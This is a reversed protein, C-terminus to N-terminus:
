WWALLIELRTPLSSLVRSLSLISRAVLGEPLNFDGGRHTDFVVFGGGLGAADRNSVFSPEETARVLFRRPRLQFLVFHSSEDFSSSGIRLSLRLRELTIDEGSVFALTALVRERYSTECDGVIAAAADGSGSGAFDADFDVDVGFDFAIAFRFLSDSESQDNSM